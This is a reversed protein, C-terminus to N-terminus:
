NIVCNLSTNAHSARRAVAGAYVSVAGFASPHAHWAHITVAAPEHVAALSKGLPYSIHCPNFVPMVYLRWLICAPIDAV